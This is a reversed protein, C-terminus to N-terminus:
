SKVYKDLGFIKIKVVENYILAGSTMIVFGILQLWSFVENGCLLSVVWVTFARITDITVRSLSSSYKTVSVGFIDYLPNVFFYACFLLLLLTKSNFVQSLALPVDELFGYDFLGCKIYSAIPVLLLVIALSNIGELGQSLLPHISYTAVLREEFIYLISYCLQCLLGFLIGIMSASRKEPHEILVTAIITLVGSAIIIIGTIHHRYLKKKLFLVSSLATFFTISNRIMMYISANLITLSFNRSFIALVAFLSPLTYKFSTVHPLRKSPPTTSRWIYYVALFISEGILMIIAQFMPHAFRIGQSTTRNQQKMILTNLSGFIIVMLFLLLVNKKEM